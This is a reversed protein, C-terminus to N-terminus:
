AVAKGDAAGGPARAYQFTTHWYDLNFLHGRWSFRHALRPWNHGTERLTAVMPEMPVAHARMPDWPISDM